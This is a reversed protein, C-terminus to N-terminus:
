GLVKLERFYTRYFGRDRSLLIESHFIAHAAIVFDSIIHQRSYVDQGCKSCTVSMKNGCSACQLKRGRNKAYQKWREGAKYIAREDSHVLQIGTDDLFSRLDKEAAFQSALEACVIDCIILQGKELQEDLLEKSKQFHNEDHILVDLLINTDVATIM